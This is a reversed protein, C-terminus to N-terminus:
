DEIADFMTLINSDRNGGKGGSNSFYSNVLKPVSMTYKSVSVAYDTNAIYSPVELKVGMAELQYLLNVVARSECCHGDLREPLGLQALHNNIMRGTNDSKENIIEHIFHASGYAALAMLEMEAMRQGKASEDGKQPQSNTRAYQEELVGARANIKEDAEQMLKLFTPCGITVKNEFYTETVPDYLVADGNKDFVGRWDIVNAINRWVLEHLYEPLEKYQACVMNFAERNYTKTANSGIAPTNALDWTYSMLYDIDRPSAGNYSNSIMEVGLVEAILGLHAHWVQGLNMRSPVGCPNLCFEVTRGNLLQPAMSDPQVISVVGKNGHFGSMKDGSQLKNLSLLHYRYTRSQKTDEIAKCEFPIGNAKVTAKVLQTTFNKTSSDSRLRIRGVVDGEGCYKFGKISEARAHPSHKKSVKADIKHTSMSVYNTSGREFAHVGDEYNYATSIYAVLPNRSPTYVGGRSMCTDALIQGKKVIDGVSCHINLFVATQGMIRGNNIAIMDVNTLDTFSGKSNMSKDIEIATDSISVIRGDYPARVVFPQPYKHAKAIVDGNRVTQGPKVLIEVTADLQGQHSSEQIEVTHIVGDSGQITASINDINLVKGNAPSRYMDAESYNFIDEYMETRVTPRQSNVLYIAQRIQSVGYSIRIANNSCVFPVMAATPSLFQEPYADVYGDALDYANITAFIFPEDSVDPNPIRALIPKNLYVDPNNPDKELSLMDGFKHGLEQKVTFWTIKDSIRIGNATAIVKRYPAEALGNRIRTGLAKTNVLGLKKGAPTEFPCLRSYFPVAIHRLEDVVEASSSMLNVIHNVQSIESTLNISDVPSLYRLNNMKSVWKKTLNYFPNYGTASTLQSVINNKYQRFFETITSRLTESFIENVMLVKKLFSTDRNLLSTSGTLEIEGILSMIALLDHPTLWDSEKKRDLNPNNYYYVWEDAYRGAPINSTLDKLRATYNGVIEREFSFTIVTKSKGATVQIEEFGTVLLFEALEETLPDSNSVVIWHDRDLTVNEPIEPVDAFQPILRRLLACNKTGAPIETFYMPAQSFVTYGTLLHNNVVYLCNVRARKFEKLMAPTIQTGRPYQPFGEVERSLTQGIARDLTLAENLADRTNGLLYQQSKYKSLINSKSSNKTSTATTAVLEQHAYRNLTNKTISFKNVLHTNKIINCINTNDGIEHLMASILKDLQVRQKGYRVFVGANTSMVKINAYPMAINFTNDKVAFSVDESSRLVSLCVKTSGDINLQGYDDMYPIRLIEMPQGVLQGHLYVNGIVPYYYKGVATQSKMFTQREINGVSVRLEVDQLNSVSQITEELFKMDDYITKELYTRYSQQIDDMINVELKPVDVQMIQLSDGRMKFM